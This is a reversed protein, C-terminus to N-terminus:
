RDWHKWWPDDDWCRHCYDDGSPVCLFNKANNSSGWGRYQAVEPYPCLPRTRDVVGNTLHSAIIREPAIGREVWKELAGLSDFTDPGPGGNCHQMGPAMFLRLFDETRCKGGMSEMVSEYYNISNRPAINQDIWGHYMLLKGGLKKFATLDAETANLIPGLRYHADDMILFNNPDTFSFTKWNWSEDEFVMYKFYSTPISFPQGIHGGWGIESSQEYPPWFQKRTTPDKLGDYIKKVSDVQATTLFSLTSPDFDCERPDDLVGDKIGDLGDCAALVANTILPLQAVPIENATGKQTLWAPYLEGPWMHTPFNAPAGSVIGDYDAPYRQAEALGQQGGGSCGTFYSYRPSWGYYKRVIEKSARTMLHIARYGFDVLLDPRNLAWSGDGLFAQHGTDTSATAYGRALAATMASYNIFGALGGNGVGNFKGNWLKQNNAPLWVEFNINDDIKAVVRCIPIPLTGVPAPNTGASLSEASTITVGSLTLEELDECSCAAAFTSFCFVLVVASVSMGVIKAIKMTVEERQSLPKLKSKVRM